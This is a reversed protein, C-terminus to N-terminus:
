HTLMSGETSLKLGTADCQMSTVYQCRSLCGLSQSLMYQKCRSSVGCIQAFLHVESLSGTLHLQQWRKSLQKSRAELRRQQHNPLTRDLLARNPRMPLSASWWSKGM